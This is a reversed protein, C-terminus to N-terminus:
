DILTFVRSFRIKRFINNITQDMSWYVMMPTGVVYEEPIFGWFRSDLSDDRNDGMGFVYNREVTYSASPKGDITIKGGAIAVTHGERRIFTAWEAINDMTLNIVDGEAPVVLPGYQDRNWPKGRPFIMDDTNDAPLPEFMHHVGEPEDVKKGNIYLQKDAIRITDGATAVCRKLYYQFTEAKDQDRNGPFIFVIVDGKEPDSFGPTRVYPLEVETGFFIGLLPITPPTTGGYIFKNVFLFDGAMVTNEMSGTPVQFSALVFSNLVIVAVLAFGLSKLTEKISKKM